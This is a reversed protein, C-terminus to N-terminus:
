KMENSVIFNIIPTPDKLCHPHHGVGEKLILQTKGGLKEYRKKLIESNETFPVVDDSDGCVFMVPVKAAALKDLDDFPNGKFSTASEENLEFAKLCIKWQAAAGKGNGKGGPWSRIDCVPNDAYICSVKDPNAKAWNFIILGGRSMGELAPRDHLERENVLYNYFKDWLGVAKANGFLGAVDIYAVHYGRSLLATDVQPQHGFFRARWIWPNGEAATKPQVLICKTGDLKFDQQKYGHWSKTKSSIEIKPSNSEQSEQSYAVSNIVLLITLTLSLLKSNM